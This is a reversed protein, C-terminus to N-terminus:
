LRHAGSGASRRRSRSTATSAWCSGFHSTPVSRSTCRMSGTRWGSWTRNRVYRDLRRRHGSAARGPAGWSGGPRRGPSAGARRVRVAEPGPPPRESARRLLHPRSARPHAERAAHGLRAARTTPTPPTVCSTPDFPTGCTERGSRRWRVYASVPGARRGQPSCPAWGTAGAIVGAGPAGHRGRRGRHLDRRGAHGPGRRRGTTTECTSRTARGAASPSTTSSDSWVWSGGLEGHSSCSRSAARAGNRSGRSATKCAAGAARDRGASPDGPRRRADARPGSGTVPTSSKMANARGGVSTRTSCAGRDLAKPYFYTSKQAMVNWRAVGRPDVRGAHVRAPVGGDATGEGRM